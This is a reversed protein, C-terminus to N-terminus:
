GERVGEHEDPQPPEHRERQVLPAHAEPDSRPQPTVKDAIFARADGVRSPRRSCINGSSEAASSARVCRKPLGARKASPSYTRRVPLTLGPIKTTSEPPIRTVPRSAWPCANGTVSCPGPFKEPSSECSEPLGENTSPTATPSVWASTM